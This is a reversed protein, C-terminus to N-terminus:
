KVVAMKHTFVVDRGERLVTLRYLYVGSCVIVGADDTGDWSAQYAGPQQRQKVLQRIRQGHVNYIDIRIDSEQSLHYPISTSLNFPNPYNQQLEFNDVSTSADPNKPEVAATLRKIISVKDLYISIDNGGLLFKFHTSIDTATADYIIPGYLGSHDIIIDYQWYVTYNPGGGQFNIAIAKERDADALFSIEYRYGATLAVPQTLQIYWNQIDGYAIFFAAYTSDEFWTDNLIEFTYQPTGSGGTTWPLRGCDFGGNKIVDGDPSNGVKIQISDSTVKNKDLDTVVAYVYYNGSVVNEWTFEFPASRKKGIALGNKFFQVDKITGSAITAEAQLLINVCSEFTSQDQPSIMRVTMNDQAVLAAPMLVPILLTVALLLLSFITDRFM